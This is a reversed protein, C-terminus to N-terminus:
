TGRLGQEGHLDQGQMRGNPAVSSPIDTSIETSYRHSYQFSFLFVNYLNYLSYLTIFGLNPKKVHGRVHYGLDVNNYIPSIIIIHACAKLSRNPIVDLGNMTLPSPKQNPFTLPMSFIFRTKQLFFVDKLEKDFITHLLKIVDFM